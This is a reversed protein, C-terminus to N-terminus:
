DKEAKVKREPKKWVDVELTNDDLETGNIAAVANSADDETKFTVCATGPKMLDCLDVEHGNDVFHQKLQKWTTKESLGGVWIKLSHDIAKFKEKMKNNGIKMKNKLLSTKVGLKNTKKRQEGEPREKKEKKTWVDVQIEKGNLESNNMAAIVTEADEPTKFSLCATGKSM